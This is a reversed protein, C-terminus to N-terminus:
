DAIQLPASKSVTVKNVLVKHVPAIKAEARFFTQKDVQCHFDYIENLASFSETLARNSMRNILYYCAIKYLAEKPLLHPEGTVELSATFIARAGDLGDHHSTTTWRDHGSRIM